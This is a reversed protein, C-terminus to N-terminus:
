TALESALGAAGPAHPGSSQGLGSGMPDGATWTSGSLTGHFYKFQYAGADDSAQYVLHLASGEIALTPMERVLTGNITAAASWGTSAYSLSMLTDSGAAHFVGQFGAGFSVFAPIAAMGPTF